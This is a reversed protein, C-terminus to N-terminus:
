CTGHALLAVKKQTKYLKNFAACAEPTPLLVLEHIGNEAISKITKQSVEIASEVGIGIVLIDVGLNYVGTIMDPKLHHGKREKWQTVKGNLIRIDKGVGQGDESHEQGAIVYKGWSFHTILGDPDDLMATRRLAQEVGNRDIRDPM